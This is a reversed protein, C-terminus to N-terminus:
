RGRALEHDLSDTGPDALRLVRARELARLETVDVGAHGLEDVRPERTACAVIAAERPTLTLPARYRRFTVVVAEDGYEV